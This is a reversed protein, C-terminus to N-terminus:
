QMQSAKFAEMGSKFAHIVEPTEDIYYPRAIKGTRDYDAFNWWILGQLRPFQDLSDFMETIWEAKNGGVSSSSFETIYLPYDFIQNYEAYIPQYIEEFSRWSEGEYYTGTNYGTLGVAHIQDTPPLYALMHNWRYNPFSRENPNFVWRANSAGEEQFVQYIWQWLDGYLRTELGYHLSSYNCWDGNMENNLRFLVPDKQDRVLRALQRIEEDYQGDLVAYVSSEMRNDENTQLTLEIIRGDEQANKLDKSLQDFSDAFNTYRLILPFDTNLEEELTKVKALSRPAGPDFIGWLPTDTQLTDPLLTHVPDEQNALPSSIRESPTSLTAQSVPAGSRYYSLATKLDVPSTSRLILLDGQYRGREIFALLQYRFYHSEHLLAQREFTACLIRSNNEEYSKIQLNELAETLHFKSTSYYAFNWFTEEHQDFAQPILEMQMSDSSISIGVPLKNYNLSFDAPFCIGSNSEQDWIYRNGAESAFQYPSAAFGTTSLCAVTCLAIIIKKCKQRM